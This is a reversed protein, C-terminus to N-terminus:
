KRLIFRKISINKTPFLSFHDNSDTGCRRRDHQARPKSTNVKRRAHSTNPLLVPETVGEVNSANWRLLLSDRSTERKKKKKM